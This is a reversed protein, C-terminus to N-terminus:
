FLYSCNPSKPRLIVMVTEQNPGLFWTPPPKDTQAEFGILSHLRHSSV